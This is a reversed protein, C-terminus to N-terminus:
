CSELVCVFEHISIFVWLLFFDDRNDFYCLKLLECISSFLYDTVLPIKFIKKKKKNILRHSVLWNLEYVTLKRKAEASKRYM